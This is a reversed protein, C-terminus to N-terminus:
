DPSYAIEYLKAIFRDIYETDVYYRAIILVMSRNLLGLTGPPLVPNLITREIADKMINIVRDANVPDINYILTYLRLDDEYKRAKILFSDFADRFDDSRIERSIIDACQLLANIKSQRLAEAAM